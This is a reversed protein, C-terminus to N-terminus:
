RLINPTADLQADFYIVGNVRIGDIRSESNPAPPAVPVIPPRIFIIAAAIVFGAAIGDM